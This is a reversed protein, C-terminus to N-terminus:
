LSPILLVKYSNLYASVNTDTNSSHASCNTGSITLTGNTNYSWSVNIVCESSNWETGYKYCYGKISSAVVYFNDKTLKTLDGDYCTSVDLTNNTATGCDIVKANGSKSYLDDIADQMNTASSGSITNDYTTDRASISLAFVGISSIIIGVIIGLVFKMNKM